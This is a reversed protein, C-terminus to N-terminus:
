GGRRRKRRSLLLLASAGMLLTGAFLYRVPGKGGTEPLEYGSSEKKKNTVTIKGSQVAESGNSYSTTYGAVPDEEIYYKYTNGKGDTEPLSVTNGNADKTTGDWVYKWQNATSLTQTDIVTDETVNMQTPKTYDLQVDKVNPVYGVDIDYSGDSQINGLSIIFKTSGKEADWTGSYTTGNYTINSNSSWITVTVPTGPEVDAEYSKANGNSDTLDVAVHNHVYDGIQRHLHVTVTKGPNDMEQNNQDLWVKRVQIAEYPNTAYISNDDYVWQVSDQTLGKNTIGLQYYGGVNSWIDGKNSNNGSRNMWVFYITSYNESSGYGSNPNNTEVLRYLKGKEPSGTDGEAFKVGGLISGNSGDGTTVTSVDSWGDDAGSNWQVKSPDYVQLKFEVNPLFIGYNEADVKYLYLVSQTASSSSSSKELQQSVKSGSGSVGEISAENTITPMNVGPQVHYTYCVVMATEDPLEFDLQHSSEDYTYSYRQANMVSGRHNEATESYQYVVTKEPILHIYASETVGTVKDALHITDSGEVLDEAEPNVVIQYELNNTVNGKGDKLQTVTKEVTKAKKDVETDQTDSAGKEEWTAKNSFVKKKVTKDNWVSNESQDINAAYYIVLYQFENAYKGAPLSATLTKGDSSVQASFISSDTLDGAPHDSSNNWPNKTYGTNYDPDGGYYKASISDPDVTLGDQMTDKITIATGNDKNVKVLLRYYIKGSALDVKVNGSSYPGDKSASSQKDVDGDVKYVYEGTSSQGQVLAKNTVKRSNGVHLGDTAVMSQYHLSISTQGNLRNKVYDDTFVFKFDTIKDKSSSGTIDTNGAYIRYDKGPELTTGDESWLYTQSIDNLLKATTYHFSADQSGNEDQLFDEFTMDESSIVKSPLDIRAVWTLLNYGDKVEASGAGTLSGYDDTISWKQVDYKKEPVTYSASSDASYIKSGKSFKAENTSTYSSGETGTPIDTQYTITYTDTSSFGSIPFTIEGNKFSVQKSKGDQNTVTVTSPLRIPDGGTQATFKDQLIYGSINTRDPNITITWKYKGSDGYIWYKDLMKHTVMTQTSNSDHDDGSYAEATNRIFSEGTKSDATGPKVTYTIVYQSNASMKPLIFPFTSGSVPTVTNGNGDKISINSYSLSGSMGSGQLNDSVTVKDGTGKTTSVTITYHVLGDSGLEGKKSVSLDTTKEKESPKVTITTGDSFKHTVTDTDSSNKVTGEFIIEGTFAVTTDLNDNFTMTITGDTSITYDGVDNESADMIDGSQGSSPVIVGDGLKYSLTADSDSLDGSPVSYSFQFKATDGNTFETTSVWRGNEYKYSEVATIYKSLDGTAGAAVAAAMLGAM